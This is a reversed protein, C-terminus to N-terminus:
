RKDQANPQGHGPLFAALNVKGIGAQTIAQMVPQVADYYLAADARLVVEVTSNGQKDTPGKAVADELAAIVGAMDDIAFSQLGVKVEYAEGAFDLPNGRLRDASYPQPAVNVTIRHVEGLESTKPDDLRPVVMEVAEEAIINSVLMFFVILLFVVDILPTLNMQPTVPGKKFVQSAM